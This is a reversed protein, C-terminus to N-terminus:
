NGRLWTQLRTQRKSDDINTRARTIGKQDGILIVGKKARTIATYVLRRSLMFNHSSHCVVVVWSWESGQSNWGDFGSQLFRHGDPVHLCYSPGETVEIDTIRVHLAGLRDTAIHERRATVDSVYGRQKANQQWGPAWSPIEDRGVPIERSRGSDSAWGCQLRKTKFQAVFGITTAFLDLSDPYISLRWTTDYKARSSTIGFRLLMVQVVRSLDEQATVWEVHDVSGERNLAVSGAEFLGRLFSAHYERPSMRICQPVAKAHPDLGGLARLWQVLPRSCLEVAEAGPVAFRSSVRGFLECTLAEFRDVVDAHRKTLRFGGDFVTGDAVMLGLWEAFAQTMQTPFTIPKTRSDLEPPVPLTPLTQVADEPALPLRLWQGVRLHQADVREYTDGCWATMGHDFTVTVEYGRATRIRLLKEPARRILSDFSKVGTPTEVLGANQTLEDARLLGRDTGILTDGAVCKHITLAYGLRLDNAPVATVELASGHGADIHGDFAVRATPTQQGENPIEIVTGLEGNMVNVQYNNRVNIVRDEVRLVFAEDRGFGSVHWENRQPNIAKQVENNIMAVGADGTRMPSLVQLSGDKDYDWDRHVAVVAGWAHQPAHPGIDIFHFDECNDLELHEGRNLKRANRCIWSEQAARHLTQLRVTSVAGSAIIDHLVNGPGVSPLQDVDGVLVIRAGDAERFLAAALKVDLMSAEDVVILSGALSEAIGTQPNRRDFHDGGKWGLFRHLTQAEVGIADKMRVAAKGTPACLHVREPLGRIAEKLCTTKGTGPGGTVVAIRAHRILQVAAEQDKDLNM